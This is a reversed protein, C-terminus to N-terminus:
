IHTVVREGSTGQWTENHEDWFMSPDTDKFTRSQGVKIRKGSIKFTLFGNKNRGHVVIIASGDVDPTMETAEWREGNITARLYSGPPAGTSSAPEVAVNSGDQVAIIEGALRQADQRTSSNRGMNRPHNRRPRM